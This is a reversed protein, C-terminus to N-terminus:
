KQSVGGLQEGLARVIDARAVIGKLHNEGDVVPIRNISYRNMLEPAVSLPEDEGVTVVKSSMIQKVTMGRLMESGELTRFLNEVSRANWLYWFWDLEAFSLIDLAVPTRGPRARYKEEMKESKQLAEAQRKLLKVIDSDSVMGLVRGESDMVPAGSIKRQTLTDAADAVSANETFTVVERTM